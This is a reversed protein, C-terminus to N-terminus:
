YSMLDGSFPAKFFEVCFTISTLLGSLLLIASAIYLVLLPALLCTVIEGIPALEDRLVARLLEFSRCKSTKDAFVIFSALSWFRPFKRLDGSALPM